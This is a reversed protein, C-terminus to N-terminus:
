STASNCRDTREDEGRTCPPLKDSLEGGTESAYRVTRLPKGPTIDHMEAGCSCEADRTPHRGAGHTWAHPLTKNPM